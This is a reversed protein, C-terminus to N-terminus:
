AKGGCQRQRKYVDLHTYSVPGFGLANGIAIVPEGVQLSDSDGLTAIAIEKMTSDKIDSLKVAIVAIDRTSDAGKIVASVSENDVFSVTLTQNDAVVHNNTLILLETDNKGIIVGSGSSQVEQQMTGGFFSQVDQVSMNTISVVSPMTKNVIETVDSTITSTSKNVKTTAVEKSSNTSTTDKGLIKGTIYNSTQYTASAVVGFIVALGVCAAVKLGNGHKKPKSPHKPPQM